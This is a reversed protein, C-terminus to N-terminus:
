TERPKIRTAGENIVFAGYEHAAQEKVNIDRM